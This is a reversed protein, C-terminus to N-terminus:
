LTNTPTNTRTDTATNTPTNTRTDTKSPTYTITPTSTASPIPSKTLTPSGFNFEISSAGISNIMSSPVLSSISASSISVTGPSPLRVPITLNCSTFAAVNVGSVTITSAGTVATISGGCGNTVSAAIVMPSPLTFTYGIGSTATSNSNTILLSLNASTTVIAASFAAEITTSQQNSFQENEAIYEGPTSGLNWQVSIGADHTGTNVTNPVDGGSGWYSSPTNYAGVFASSFPRAGAERIGLLYRSNQEIEMASIVPSTMKMGNASDSQGPAADGGKYIKVAATNGTPITTTFKERYFKNPYAYSIERDFIYTLAGITKTYRILIYANGTGTTNNETDYTASGSRALIEVNTWTSNASGYGQSMSTSGIAVGWGWNAGDVGCCFQTKSGYFFHEAANFSARIGDSGNAINGGGRNIWIAVGDQNAAKVVTAPSLVTTCLLVCILLPTLLKNFLTPMM